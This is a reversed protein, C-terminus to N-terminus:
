FRFAPHLQDPPRQLSVTSRPGADVVYSVGDESIYSPPRPVARGAGGDSSASGSPGAEASPLPPTPQDVRQWFLLEPNV